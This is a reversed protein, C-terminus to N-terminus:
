ETQIRTPRPNRPHTYQITSTRQTISDASDAQGASKYMLSPKRTDALMHKVTNTSWSVADLGRHHFLESDSPSKREVGQKDEVRSSSPHGLALLPGLCALLQLKMAGFNNDDSHLELRPSPIPLPLILLLSGTCAIIDIDCRPCNSARIHCHITSDGFNRLKLTM